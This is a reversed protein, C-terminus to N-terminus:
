RPRLEVPSYKRHHPPVVTNSDHNFTLVKTITANRIRTALEQMEIQSEEDNHIQGRGIRITPNPSADNIVENQDDLEAGFELLIAITDFEKEKIDQRGKTPTILTGDREMYQHIPLSASGALFFNNNITVTLLATTGCIRIMTQLNM